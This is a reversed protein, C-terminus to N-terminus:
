SGSWLWVRLAGTRGRLNTDIPGKLNGSALTNKANGIANYLADSVALEFGHDAAVKMLRSAVNITDGTASIQQRNGAGLRSAVVIGFHAGVKFGISPNEPQQMGALWARTRACLEFCCHLAKAADDDGPEPLGFLIMVGDGMFSTIAGGSEAVVEDVLSFFGDLLERTATPGIIESYGTFGSLDIFVVAAQQEVPRALFDPNRALWETMGPAQVRQLVDSQRAFRDARRRGLWIQAMGFLITPPFAAALPLAASMWIGHRFAYFNSFSWIVLVAGVSILGLANRHWALLGILVMPLIAGTVADALRVNRDRILGDGSLLHTIGTAMVEVGPLVPDFPTPFVDGGGSVTAGVLVVRNAFAQRPFDGDLVDAASITPISGHPGYFSLPLLHGIDTPIRRGDLTISHAGIVPDAGVAASAARLAFSVQIQSGDSFLMPLFRPVGDQDTKVNVIGLGAARAFMHQPMLFEEAAPINELINGSPAPAQQSSASYIAAAAIVSRTDSLAEQLMRDGESPGPDVFLMDLAIVKAGASEIQRVIRAVDTRPLPYAREQRVAKDDIAVITVAPPPTRPGHLLTRLDTLPAEIREIVPVDGRLHSFGLLAGWSGAALLAAFTWSPRLRAM